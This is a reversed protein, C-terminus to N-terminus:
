AIQEPTIVVKFNQADVHSIGVRLLYWTLLLAAIDLADYYIKTYLDMETPNKLVPKKFNEDPMLLGMEDLYQKLIYIALILLLFNVINLFIKIKTQKDFRKEIWLKM